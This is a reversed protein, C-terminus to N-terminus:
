AREARRSADRRWRAPTVGTADKFARTLHSQSSFGCALAAQAISDGNRILREARAIRRRLVYAHPALGFSEAFCRLFHFESLDALAALGALPLADDLHAEIHDRLRRRALPALGGRLATPRDPSKEFLAGVLAAVAEQAAMPDDALAAAAARRMPAALRPRDELTVEALNMLRADRDFTEAFARRLEKDPLHVHAFRFAAGVEWRSPCGQPLVCVAGPFGRRSDGARRVNEGGELYLSVTHGEPDPYATRSATNSWLTAFRGSGLAVHRLARATPVDALYAFTPRPGSM